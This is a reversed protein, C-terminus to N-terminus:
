VGPAGNKRKLGLDTGVKEMLKENLPYLFIFIVSLVTGIAPYFSLMMRIGDQAEVTQIVNAKFGYFALLWGTLAGGLTWGFKQSMSSSSFVLGTARRGTKWESFDAIDAYMSWLLPFISGACISILSQFVLIMIISEQNLWYFSISLITAALMASMYTAKKGFKNALPTVFIIGVINFAQGLVFYVSVLNQNQIYYKFYYIAAGDRISNFILAAIGSGLLIWWPKNMLLDKLDIGLRTKEQKIPKVRERTWSFTLGFLLIAIVAFVAVSLQWALPENAKVSGGFFNVLPNVLALALMSGAFAFVMRFSSLTTREKGDTSM